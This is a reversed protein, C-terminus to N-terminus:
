EAELADEALGDDVLSAAAVGGPIGDNVLLPRGDAMGKFCPERRLVEGAVSALKTRERAQSLRWLGRDVASSSHGRWCTITAGCRAWWSSVSASVRLGWATM